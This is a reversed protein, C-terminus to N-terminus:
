KEPSIDGNNSLSIPFFFFEQTLKVLNAIKKNFKALIEIGLFHSFIGQKV